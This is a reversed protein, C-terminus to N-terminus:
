VQKIEAGKVQVLESTTTEGRRFSELVGHVQQWV